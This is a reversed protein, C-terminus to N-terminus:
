KMKDAVEGITQIYGKRSFFHHLCVSEHLVQTTHNPYKICITHNRERYFNSFVDMLSDSAMVQIPSTQKRLKNHKEYRKLLFRIFAYTRRKWEMRNEMFLFIFLFFTSLTFSFVAIQLVLLLLCVVMSFFVTYYYAKKYPIYKSIFLQLLKGGDLPFIPLLNFLFIVTNYYFLLDLISQSFLHAESVIVIIFQLILHQFPGACIVLMEEYIPRTGHEETDMVGGFIWLMIKRIRWNFKVAMLYHGLEHFLVISFLIFLEVFTGTLFSIIIFLLLVPHFHIKPFLNNWM